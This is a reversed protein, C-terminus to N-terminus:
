PLLPMKIHNNLLLKLYSSKKSISMIISNLTAMITEQLSVITKIQIEKLVSTRATPSCAIIISAKYHAKM